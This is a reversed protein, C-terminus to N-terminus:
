RLFFSFLHVSNKVAKTGYIITTYTLFVVKIQGFLISNNNKNKSPKSYLYM